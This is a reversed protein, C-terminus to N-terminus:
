EALRKEVADILAAFGSASLMEATPVYMDTLRDTLLAITDRIETYQDITEEHQQRIPSPVGKMTLELEQIKKTWYRVYKIREKPDFIEADDLLMHFVRENFDGKKAIEVLEFMCNESELYEKSIVVIVCKGRGIKKMFDKISEKYGLDRTDRFITIGREQFANDLQDAIETSEKNRAYSISVEKKSEEEPELSSRRIGNDQPQDGDQRDGDQRDGDQRDEDQRDGDQRDEDQRDEDQRDEDPPDEDPSDEDQSDEDQSDEDQRDGDQRDGDQRDEPPPDELPKVSSKFTTLSEMQGIWDPLETLPNDRVDLIELQKLQSISEPLQTLENSRLDLVTLDQLEGIWDPLQTLENNSLDLATLDRLKSIREPLQKWGNESLNLKTLGQLEGIWNPIDALGKGSLNLEKLGTERPKGLRGFISSTKGM